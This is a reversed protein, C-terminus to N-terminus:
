SLAKEIQDWRDRYKYADKLPIVFWFDTPARKPGYPRIHKAPLPSKAIFVDPHWSDDPALPAGGRLDVFALLFDKHGHGEGLHKGIRWKWRDAPKGIDMHATTMTKVQISISKGTQSNAALLDVGKVGPATLGVALGRSSLQFAVYHVGAAGTLAKEVVTM